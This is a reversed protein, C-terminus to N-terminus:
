HNKSIEEDFNYNTYCRFDNALNNKHKPQFSCIKLQLVRGALEEM